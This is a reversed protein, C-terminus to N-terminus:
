GTALGSDWGGVLDLLDRGLCLAPKCSISGRLLSLCCPAAFLPVGHVDKGNEKEGSNKKSASDHAQTEELTEGGYKKVGGFIYFLRM